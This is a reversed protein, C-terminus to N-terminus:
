ALVGASYDNLYKRIKGLSGRSGVAGNTVYDITAVNYKVIKEAGEGRGPYERSREFKMSLKDKEFPMTVEIAPANKHKQFYSHSTHGGALAAASILNQHHKQVRHVEDISLGEPLLTAYVDKEVNVIGGDGVKFTKELRKALDLVEPSLKLEDLAAKDSM